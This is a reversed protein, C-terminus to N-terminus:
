KSPKLPTCAGFGSVTIGDRAVAVTTLGTAEVILFSFARGGEVGQLYIVGDERLVHKIPTSRNEGSAETTRLIKKDLDVEIFNPINFEWPPGSACEGDASCVIAHAASCLITQAGTLDDAQAPTGLIPVALAAVLLAIRVNM